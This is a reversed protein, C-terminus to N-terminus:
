SKFAPNVALQDERKKGYVSVSLCRYISLNMQQPQKYKASQVFYFSFDNSFFFKVLIFRQGSSLKKICMAFPLVHLGERYETRRDHNITVKDHDITSIFVSRTM